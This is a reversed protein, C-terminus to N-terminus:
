VSHQGLVVEAGDEFEIIYADRVPDRGGQFSIEGTLGTFTLNTLAKVVDDSNTNGAAKIADALAYIAEYGLVAFMNESEGYRTQYEDMFKQLAESPNDRSYQSCYYCGDLLGANAEGIQQLVGDWGDPGMLPVDIGLERAQNVILAADEYYSCVMIADPNGSKIKTLQANYDTNGNPYGEKTTITMGLDAAKQEFADAIGTAYDDGVDYLLAVNEFGLENYAYDAMLRGQYPDTFCIRFINDGVETVAAGTATPTIMPIGDDAAKQAVALTPATTVDGMLAIIKDTQV